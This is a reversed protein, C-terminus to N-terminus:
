SREPLRMRELRPLLLHIVALAISYTSAAIAFPVLYNNNRADLIRSVIQAFAMGAISGAMGGIGVVSSVAQKPITDSVLTFLNAAYGCHAAAALTVLGVAWWVHDLPVHGLPAADISRTFLRRWEGDIRVERGPSACFARICPM